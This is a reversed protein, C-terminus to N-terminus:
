LFLSLIHRARTGDIPAFQEWTSPSGIMILIVIEDFWLLSRAMREPLVKYLPAPGLDLLPTQVVHTILFLCVSQLAAAVQLCGPRALLLPLHRERLIFRARARYSIPHTEALKEEM